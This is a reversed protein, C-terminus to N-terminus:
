GRVLEVSMLTGKEIEIKISQPGPLASTIESNGCPVEGNFYWYGDPFSMTEDEDHVPYHIKVDM